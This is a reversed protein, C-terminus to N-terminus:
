AKASPNPKPWYQDVYQGSGDNPFSRPYFWARYCLFPIAPAQDPIMLNVHEMHLINGLSESSRNYSRSM